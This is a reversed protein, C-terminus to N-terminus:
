HQKVVTPNIKLLPIGSNYNSELHFSSKVRAGLNLKSNMKKSIGAPFNRVEGYSHFIFIIPKFILPGYYFLEIFDKPM